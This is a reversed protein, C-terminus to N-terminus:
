KCETEIELQMNRIFGVETGAHFRGCNRNVHLPQENLDVHVHHAGDAHAYYHLIHHLFMQMLVLRYNVRVRVPGVGVRPVNM